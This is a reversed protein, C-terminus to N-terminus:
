ADRWTGTSWLVTDDRAYTVLNGDNQVWLSGGRGSGWSGGDQNAAWVVENMPGYIVLNGDDQMRLQGPKGTRNTAWLVKADSRRYLVLNGDTQYCLEFKGNASRLAEGPELVENERLRRRAVWMVSGDRAYTVLNGDDQLEARGGRNAEFRGDDQNAAWVVENAPGYIVLNGDDQMRLAGRTRSGTAWRLKRDRVRYVVLDGDTQYSLEYEGNPSFLSEGARLVENERLTTRGPVVAVPTPAPTPAVDPKPPPEPLPVAQGQVPTRSWLVSRDRAYVVINGDDTLDVQWGLGAGTRGDARWTVVQEHVTGGSQIPAGMIDRVVVPTVTTRVATAVLDGDERLALGEGTTAGKAEWVVAWDSCRRLEVAGNAEVALQYTRASSRLHEWPRLTEGVRLSSRVRQDVSERCAQVGRGTYFALTGDDHLVLRAGAFRDKDGTHVYGWENVNAHVLVGSGDAYFWLRTRDQKSNWLTRGGPPSCVEIAFEPLVRAEYWGNPSTWRQGVGIREGTEVVKVGPVNVRFPPMGGRGQENDSYWCLRDSADFIGLCGDNQLTVRGARSSSWDGRASWVEAGDADRLVLKLGATLELRAAKSGATGSQWVVAGAVGTIVVNGDPQLTLAHSRNSSRLVQSTTLATDPGLTSMDPGSEWAFGLREPDETWLAGYQSRSVGLQRVLWSRDPDTNFCAVLELNEDLIMLHATSAGGIGGWYSPNIAHWAKLLNDQQVQATAGPAITMAQSNLMVKIQNIMSDIQRSDPLLAEAAYTAYEKVQLGATIAKIVRLEMVADYLSKVGNIVRRFQSVHAAAAGASAGGSAIATGVELVVAGALDAWVWDPNPSVLVYIPRELGNAIWIQTDKSGFSSM